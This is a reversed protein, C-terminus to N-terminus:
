SNKIETVEPGIRINSEGRGSLRNVAKLMKMKDTETLFDVVDCYDRIKGKDVMERAIPRLGDCAMYLLRRVLSEGDEGSLSNCEAYEAASLRRISMKEDLTEFYIPEAVSMDTNKKIEAAVIETLEKLTHKM